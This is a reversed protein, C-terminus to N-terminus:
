YPSIKVNKKDTRGLCRLCHSIPRMELSFALDSREFIPIDSYNIASGITVM